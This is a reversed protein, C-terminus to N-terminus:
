FLYGVGIAYRFNNFRFDVEASVNDPISIPDMGWWELRKNIEEEILPIIDSAFQSDLELKLRQFSSRPGMFMLDVVWREKIFVKYGIQIGLGFERMDGAGGIDIYQTGDWYKFELEGFLRTTRGYMGAYLGSLDGWTYNGFHYRVEPTLSFGKVGRTDSAIVFDGLGILKPIKGGLKYGTGLQMSWHENLRHEYYFSLNKFGLAAVNMKVAHKYTSDKTEQCHAPATILLMLSLLPLINKRM